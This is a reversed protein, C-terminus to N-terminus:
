AKGVVCSSGIQKSSLVELRPVWPTSTSVMRGGGVERAIPNTARCTIRGDTRTFSMEVKNAGEAWTKLAILKGDDFILVRNGDRHASPVGLKVENSWSDTKPEGTVINTTTLSYSVRARSGALPTITWSLTARSNGRKGNDLRVDRSHVVTASIRSGILDEFTISQALVPAPCIAITAAALGSRMTQRNM